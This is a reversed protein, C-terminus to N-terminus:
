LITTSTPSLASPIFYNVGKLIIQNQSLDFVLPHFWCSSPFILNGTWQWSSSATKSVVLSSMMQSVVDAAFQVFLCVNLSAFFIEGDVNEIDVWVEVWQLPTNINKEQQSNVRFIFDLSHKTAAAARGHFERVFGLNTFTVGESFMDIYGYELM